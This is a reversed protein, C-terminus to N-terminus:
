DITYFLVKLKLLLLVRVRVGPAAVCCRKMTIPSDFAAFLSTAQDYNVKEMSLKLGASLVACPYSLLATDLLM